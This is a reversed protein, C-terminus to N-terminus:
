KSVPRSCTYYTNKNAKTQIKVFPSPCACKPDVTLGNWNAEKKPNIPTEACTKTSINDIPLPDKTKECKFLKEGGMIKSVQTQGKPCFCSEDISVDTSTFTSKPNKSCVTPPAVKKKSSSPTVSPPLITSQM